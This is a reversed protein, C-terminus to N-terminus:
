KKSLFDRLPGPTNRAESGGKSKSIEEDLIFCHMITDLAMGLVLMFLKSICYSILAVVVLILYVNSPTSEVFYKTFQLNFYALAVNGAVVVLYGLMIFIGGLGGLAAFRLANRLIM